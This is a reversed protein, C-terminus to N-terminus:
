RDGTNGGPLRDKSEREGGNVGCSFVLNYIQRPVVSRVVGM